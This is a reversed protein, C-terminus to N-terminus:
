RQAPAQFSEPQSASLYRFGSTENVAYQPVWDALEKLRGPRDDRNDLVLWDQDARALLLAHVENTGKRTLVVVRLNADAFGLLKLVFYKAIAYDECDGGNRAFALPTQWIDERGFQAQDERYPARNVASNVEEIQAIPSQGASRKVIEAIWQAGADACVLGGLCARVQSEQQRLQRSVQQWQPLHLLQDLRRESLRNFSPAAAQAPATDLVAALVAVAFGLRCLPGVSAFRM